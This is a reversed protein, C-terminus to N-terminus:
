HTYPTHTHSLSPATRTRTPIHAHTRAHAHTNTRAHTRAHTRTHTLTRHLHPHAHTRTHTRTCTHAHPHTPSAASAAHEDAISGLLLQTHRLCGGGKGVEVDRGQGKLVERSM